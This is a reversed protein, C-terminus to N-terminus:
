NMLFFLVVDVSEDVCMQMHNITIGKNVSLFPTVKGLPKRMTCTADIKQQFSSQLIKYTQNQENCYPKSFRDTQIWM